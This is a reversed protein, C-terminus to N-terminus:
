IIIIVRKTMHAVLLTVGYIMALVTKLLIINWIWLKNSCGFVGVGDVGVPLAVSAGSVM